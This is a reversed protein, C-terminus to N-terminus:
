RDLRNLEEGEVRRASGGGRTSGRRGQGRARAHIRRRRGSQLAAVLGPPATHLDDLEGLAAAAVRRVAIDPDSLARGLVTASSAASLEGLARAAAERARPDSDDALLRELPAISAKSELEGLVDAAMARIAADGDRLAPIVETAASKDDIQGLAWIAALRVRRESGKMSRVLAPISSKDEIEGIAWASMAAVTADRDGLSTELAALVDRKEGVGAAHAAAERVTPSGDGLLSRLRGAAVASNGLMKSAVRRVCPNPAGLESVLLNIARPDTIHGGISDKAARLSLSTAAFGGVGFNEGSNWFNGIQDGLLECVVPDTKGLADLLIAVRGSDPGPRGEHDASENSPAAPKLTVAAGIAGAGLAASLALMSIVRMM